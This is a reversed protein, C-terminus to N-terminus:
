TQVYGSGQPYLGCYFHGNEAHIRKLADNFRKKGVPLPLWTSRKDKGEGSELLVAIYMPETNLKM